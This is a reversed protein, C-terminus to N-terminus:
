DFYILHITQTFQKHNKACFLTFDPNNLHSNDILRGLTNLFYQFVFSTGKLINEVRWHM